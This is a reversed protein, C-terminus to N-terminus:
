TFPNRITEDEIVVIWPSYNAGDKRLLPKNMKDSNMLINSAKEFVSHYLMNFTEKFDINNKATSTHKYIEKLETYYKMIEKEKFRSFIKDTIQQIIKTDESVLIPRKLIVHIEGDKMKYGIYELQELLTLNYILDFKSIETSEGLKNITKSGSILSYLITGLEIAKAEVNAKEKGALLYEWVWFLDPFAERGGKTPLRGHTIYLFRDYQSTHGWMWTTKLESISSEFGAFVYKGGPMEKSVIMLNESKMFDLGGFDFTSGGVAIYTLDSAEYGAKFFQIEKLDIEIEPLLELTTEVLLDTLKDLEPQLKKYDKAMIIPFNIRYPKNEGEKEQVILGCKQLEEIHTSVLDLDLNISESIELATKRSKHVSLLIKQAIIEKVANYPNFDPDYNGCLAFELLNENSL